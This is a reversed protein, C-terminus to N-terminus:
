QIYSCIEETTVNDYLRSVEDHLRQPIINVVDKEDAKKLLKIIAQGLEEDVKKLLEKVKKFDIKNNDDRTELWVYTAISKILEKHVQKSMDKTNKHDTIGAYLNSYKSHHFRVHSGDTRSAHEKVFGFQLLADIYDEKTLM